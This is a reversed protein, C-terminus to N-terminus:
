PLRRRRLRNASTWVLGALAAVFTLSFVAVTPNVWVPVLDYGANCKNSLPFLRSWDDLHARRYTEDYPQHHWYQCAEETDLGGSFLGRFWVIVTIVLSVWAAHAFWGPRRWDGARLGRVLRWVSWATILLPIMLSM